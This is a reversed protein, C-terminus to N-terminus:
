FPAAADSGAEFSQGVERPLARDDKENAGAVLELFLARSVSRPRGREITPVRHREVNGDGARSSGEVPSTARVSHDEHVHPISGYCLNSVRSVARGTEIQCANRFRRARALGHELDGVFLGAMTIDAFTGGQVGVKGSPEVFDGWGFDLIPREAEGVQASRMLIRSQPSLSAMSGGSSAKGLATAKGQVNMM